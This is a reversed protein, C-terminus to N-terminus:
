SGRIRHFERGHKLVNNGGEDFPRHSLLIRNLAAFCRLDHAAHKLPILFRAHAAAEARFVARRACQLKKHKVALFLFKHHVVMNILANEAALTHGAATLVRELERIVVPLQRREFALRKFM